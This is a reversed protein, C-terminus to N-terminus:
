DQVRDIASTMEEAVETLSALSSQTILSGLHIAHDFITLHTIM